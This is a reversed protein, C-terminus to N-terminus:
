YEIDLRQSKDCIMSITKPQIDTAKKYSMKLSASEFDSERGWERCRNRLYNWYIVPDCKMRPVLNLEVPQVNASGNHANRYIDISCNYKAEFMHLSMFRWSSVRLPTQAHLIPNFQFISFIIFVAWSGVGWNFIGISRPHSTQDITFRNFVFFSLILFMLWPYWYAVQSFSQIHFLALQFFTGWFIWKRNSLLGWIFVMELVIVYICAVITLDQPIFWLKEYLDAGSVWEWNLKLRGAWFYLAIIIASLSTKKSPAFLYVLTVWSLMYFQNSRFRFDQVVLLLTGVWTLFIFICAKDIKKFVFYTLSISALVLLAIFHAISQALTARLNWCQSYFPWCWPEETSAFYIGGIKYWYFISLIYALSLAIGYLSLAKDLKIESFLDKLSRM